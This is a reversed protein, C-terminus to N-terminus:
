SALLAIVLGDRYATQVRWSTPPKGNRLASDMLEIGFDYLRESTVLHHQEPKNKARAKFRNSITLLWSWDHESCLYRLALWLHYLYISLTKEGCCAPQSR